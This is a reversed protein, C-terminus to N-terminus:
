DKSMFFLAGAAAILLLKKDVGFLKGELLGPVNSQTQPNINANATSALAQAVTASTATAAVTAAQTSPACELYLTVTDLTVGPIGRSVDQLYFTTGNAVWFGTDGGGGPGPFSIGPPNAAAAKQAASGAADMFLAGTPSNVRVQAHGVNLTIFRIQTKGLGNQCGWGIQGSPNPQYGYITSGWMSWIRGQPTTGVLETLDMTQM